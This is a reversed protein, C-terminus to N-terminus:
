NLLDTFYKCLSKEVLFLFSDDIWVKGYVTCCVIQSAIQTLDVQATTVKQMQLEYSEGWNLCCYRCSFKCHKFPVNACTYFSFSVCWRCEFSNQLNSSFLLIENTWSAFEEKEQFNRYMWKPITFGLHFFAFKVIIPVWLAMLRLKRSEGFSSDKSFPGFISMLFDIATIFMRRFNCELYIMFNGSVFLRKCSFLWLVSGAVFHFTRFSFVSGIFNVMGLTAM